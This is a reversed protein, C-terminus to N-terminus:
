RKQVLLIVNSSFKKVSPLYSIFSDFISFWSSFKENKTIRYILPSLMHFRKFSLIAFGNEELIERIFNESFFWLKEPKHNYFTDTLVAKKNFGKKGILELTYSNEFEIILRGDYKIVRGFEQIAKIPDCYNLVSGVCIIMDFFENGLPINEISAIIANKINFIKDEAIDIHFMHDDPINYNNGASGANLINLNEANLNQINITIFKSIVEHTYWHWKDNEDWILDISNYKKAVEDQNISDM